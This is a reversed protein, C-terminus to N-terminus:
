SAKRLPLPRVHKPRRGRIYVDTTSRRKHGLRDQPSTGFLEEEDTASRARIDHFSFPAQLPNAADDIAARVFKYVTTKWGHETYPSGMRAVIVYPSVVRMRHETEATHELLAIVLAILEDDWDIFVDAGGKAKGVFIGERRIATKPLLRLQVGRQGVKYALDLIWPWPAPAYQKAAEIEWVDPCREKAKTPNRSIGTCPNSKVLPFDDSTLAWSYASSLLSMEKNARVPARRPAQEIMVGDAGRVPKPKWSRKQLYTSCHRSNVEHALMRGFAKALPKLYEENDAYTRKSLQGARVLKGRYAMHGVLLQLVTGAPASAATSLAVWRDRAAKSNQHDTAWEEVKCIKAWSGDDNAFFLWGRSPYVGQPFEANEPKRPRGMAAFDVGRGPLM